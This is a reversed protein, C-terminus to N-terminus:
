CPPPPHVSLYLFPSYLVQDSLLGSGLQPPHVPSSETTHTHSSCSELAKNILRLCCFIFIGHSCVGPPPYCLLNLLSDCLGLGLNLLHQLLCGGRPLVTSIGVLQPYWHRLASPLPQCSDGVCCHGLFVPSRRPRAWTRIKSRLIFGSGPFLRWGWESVSSRALRGWVLGEFPGLCWGRPHPCRLVTRGAPQACGPERPGAARRPCQQWVSLLPSHPHSSSM